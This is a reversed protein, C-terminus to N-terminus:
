KVSDPQKDRRISLASYDGLVFRKERSTFEITAPGSLAELTSFNRGSVRIEAGPYFFSKFSVKLRDEARSRALMLRQKEFLAQQMDRAKKLRELLRQMKFKRNEPLTRIRDPESAVPGLLLELEQIEREQIELAVLVRAYAMSAEVSSTLNIVTRMGGPSGIVDAEVGGASFVRGGVLHGAPMYLVGATRMTSDLAEKEILIDGLVETNIERVIRARFDGGCVIMSQRGGFVQDKVEISGDAAILGGGRVAGEVEIGRRAKISFGPLVDGRVRVQGVFDINGWRFDVDGDIMLRSVIRLRGASETLYGTELAVIEQYSRSADDPMQLALTGGLSVAAPEGRAYPIPMGLVDVGDIGAQPPYLRGVVQGQSVNDFLHIKKLETRAEDDNQIEPMGSFKKVLILLKGDLGDRPAQGSAVRRNEVKLCGENVKRVLDDVVGTNVAALDVHAALLALVEERSIVAEGGTREVDVFLKLRDSSIRASIRFGRVSETFLASCIESM